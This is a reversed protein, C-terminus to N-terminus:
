LGTERDTSNREKQARRRRRFAQGVVIISVLWLLFAELTYEQLLVLLALLFLALLIFLVLDGESLEKRPWKRGVLTLVIGALLWLLVQGVTVLADGVAYVVEASEYLLTSWRAIEVEAHIQQKQQIPTARSPVVEVVPIQQSGIRLPSTDLTVTVTAQSVDGVASSLEVERPQVDIWRGLPYFMLRAYGRSNLSLTLSQELTRGRATRGFPLHTTSLQVDPYPLHPDLHHLLAELQADPDRLNQSDRVFALLDNRHLKRFWQGYDGHRLYERAEHWYRDSLPVLAEPTYAMDGSEFIFPQVQSPTLIMELAARFQEADPREESRDALGWRLVQAVDPDLDDLRPFDFPHDRPDDDTLLHYLTAALSYVDSRPSSNQRYMEPAAYGATGYISSQQVGVHGDPALMRAKATGFDVLRVTGSNTDLIINAPKVDHHMVPPRQQALYELVRCLEVGWRLVQAQPYPAGAVLEGDPDDHTLGQRLDRGSIYEMVIYNHQGEVFYDDIRPIATHSLNALTAAEEEFRRKAAAMARRYDARSPFDAPDLYDLMEKVVVNRPQGAIVKKALYVAGMGGTGLQQAVTYAGSKLTQGARLPAYAETETMARGCRACFQAHPKNTHGCAACRNM